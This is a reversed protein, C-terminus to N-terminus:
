NNKSNIVASIKSNIVEDVNVKKIFVINMLLFYLSFSFATALAIVNISFDIRLLFLSLVANSLISVVQISLYVRQNDTSNFYNAAFGVLTLPYIGLMLIQASQIGKVYEPMFFEIFYPICLYGVFVILAMVLALIKNIKWYYDKIEKYQKQSVLGVIKPYLVQGIVQPLLMMSSFILMGIGYNGVDEPTMMIAIIIRDSAIMISWVLGVLLIPFGTKVLDKYKEFDFILKVKQFSKRGVYVEIILALLMGIFLGEYGICLVLILTLISQSVNKIFMLKSAVRFNQESKYFMEVYGSLFLFISILATLLIGTQYEQDIDFFFLSISALIFLVVSFLPLTFLFSFTLNRIEQVREGNQRALYFPVERNMANLTGLQFLPIFTFALSIALYYGYQKPGLINRTAVGVLFTFIASLLTASGLSLINEITKNQKIKKFFPM